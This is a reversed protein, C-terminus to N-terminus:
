LLIRMFRRAFMVGSDYGDRMRGVIYLVIKNWTSRIHHLKDADAQYHRGWEGSLSMLSDGVANWMGHEINYVALASLIHQQTNLLHSLVYTFLVHKRGLETLYNHLNNPQLLMKMAKELAKSFCRYYQTYDYNDDESCSNYIDAAEPCRKLM